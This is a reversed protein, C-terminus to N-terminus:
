PTKLGSELEEGRGATAIPSETRSREAIESAPRKSPGM